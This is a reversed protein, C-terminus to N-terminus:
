APRTVATRTVDTSSQGAVATRGRYPANDEVRRMFHRRCVVAWRPIAPNTWTQSIGGWRGDTLLGDCARPLDAAGGGGMESHRLIDAVSSHGGTRRGDSTRQRDTQRGNDPRLPITRSLGTPLGGAAGGGMEFYCSEDLDSWHGGTARGDSTRLCARTYDTLLGNDARRLGTALGDVACRRGDRFTEFQRCGVFARGDAAPRIDAAQGYLARTRGRVCFARLAFVLCVGGRRPM